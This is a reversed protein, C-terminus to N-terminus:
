LGLEPVLNLKTVHDHNPTIDSRHPHWQICQTYMYYNEVIDYVNPFPDDYPKTIVEEVEIIVIYLHEMLYEQKLLKNSLWM